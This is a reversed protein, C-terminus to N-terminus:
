RVAQPSIEEELATATANLKQLIEGPPSIAVFLRKTENPNLRPVDAERGHDPHAFHVFEPILFGCFVGGVFKGWIASALYHRTKLSAMFDLCLFNHIRNNWQDTRTDRTGKTNDMQRTEPKFNREFAAAFEGGAIGADAFTVILHNEIAEAELTFGYGIVDLGVPGA